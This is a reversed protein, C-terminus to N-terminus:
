DFAQWHGDYNKGYCKMTYAFDKFGVPPTTFRVYEAQEPLHKLQKYFKDRNKMWFESDKDGRYIYRGKRGGRGITVTLQDQQIDVVSSAPLFRAAIFVLALLGVIVGVSGAGIRLVAMRQDHTGLGALIGGLGIVGAAVLASLTRTFMDFWFKEENLWKM